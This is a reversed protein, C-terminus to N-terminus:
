KQNRWRQGFEDLIPQPIQSQLWNLAADQYPAIAGGKYSKCVNILSLPKTFPQRTSTPTYWLMRVWTKPGIVGDAQLTNANQFALVANKTDIDFQGSISRPDFEPKQLDKLLQQIDRVRPGKDGLQLVNFKNLDAKGSVGTINDVDGGYQHIAWNGDGWSSPTWPSIADYNAIWLPFNVFDTPDGLTNIWFNPYTYIIPKIRKGTQQQIGKMVELLWLKMGNVVTMTSAGDTTEVDLVPPLDDPDLKGLTKLFESAQQVPDSTLPHFYHYAGRIIGAKKMAPWHTSFMSDKITVGETAKAFAFSKGSNKVAVWDVAGDTEAVDIGFM